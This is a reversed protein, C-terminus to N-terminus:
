NEQADRATERGARHRAEYQKKKRRWILYAFALLGIGLAWSVKEFFSLLTRFEDAFAYGTLSIVTVWTAAGLANYVIFDRWEMGLVGAMPGAITRLGFIIRAWFITAKGHLRVHLRAVALDEDHLRLLIKFWRILRKGLARGLLFGLNDGMICGAVGILIVWQIQLATHKNSLFSAIMLVTEGPLPLGADEGLVGALVAWYGWHSLGYQVQQYVWHM